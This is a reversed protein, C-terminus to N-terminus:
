RLYAAAVEKVGEPHKLLWQDFTTQEEEVSQGLKVLFQPVEEELIFGLEEGMREEGQRDCGNFHLTYGPYSVKDIVKVGGHFGIVGTQHTGCSSTCGSIHIQPLSGDKLGAEREAKVAKRLLGQSDRIGVQCITAGICSVSTEFVTEAGDATVNLVKKAENGTLNVIYMTEDPAIRAEVADMDKIVDYIEGLKSPKPCGGIPHYVVAYLGDQKQAIVRKGEIVSGDGQKTVVVPEVHLDLDIGSDFVQALKEQYAKVYGEEGLTEQMYRSRARGRQEYNGYAIFTERMACIYYLIKEPAVAEAVKLGFKPNNGLGGASYVDFTGDERATFGLDRYTAHTENAPSNSFGVKLKRPLAPMKIFTMLYEGAAEAYPLVDFYEGKEVGSLPSVTVNRPFDGGGGMTVIDHDLAGEMIGYIAEPLLNHLQITQCTTLHVKNVDYKKISDAIFKMKDKTLHGGSMRLRIMSAKGDKQAYSGYGGSFGKYAAKKLEGAYFQDTKEKFEALEAKWTQSNIKEMFNM